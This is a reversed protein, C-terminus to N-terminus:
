AGREDRAVHVHYDPLLLTEFGDPDGDYLAYAGPYRWSAIAEAGDREIPTFAVDM